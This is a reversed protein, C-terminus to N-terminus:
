RKGERGNPWYTLALREEKTKEVEYWRQVDFWRRGRFFRFIPFLCSGSVMDLGEEEFGSSVM